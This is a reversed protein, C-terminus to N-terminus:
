VVHEPALMCTGANGAEVQLTMHGIGFKDKLANATDALEVDSLRRDPMILHCTLATETTSMAWSHLDHVEAVGPLGRLYARVLQPDIGNPVAALALNVADRLLQWTGVVIFASIVLSIAPDLWAWGTLMIVLGAVVVGASIAADTALHLFAGRQNIDGGRGALFLLATGGNVLIGIGAVVMVTLGGVPGPDTLRLVAEWAIGAVVFILVLANFLAALISSSRLGYTYRQSPRRSTMYAGGWAVLLSLVDTLNHGADALLAMSNAAFGYGAEIFVFALNIAAGIAFARGPSATVVGPGHDHGGHHHHGHDHGHDHDHHSHPPM